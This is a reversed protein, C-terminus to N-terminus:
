RFRSPTNGNIIDASEHRQFPSQFLSRDMHKRTFLDEIFEMRQPFESWDGASAMSVDENPLPISMQTKTIAVRAAKSDTMAMDIMPDLQRQEHMGIQVNGKLMHDRREGYTKSFKADHYNQFADQLDPKGQIGQNFQKMKDPSPQDMGGIMDAFKALQPAIETFVKNNGAAIAMETTKAVGDVTKSVGPMFNKEGRIASGAEASAHSAWTSWNAGAGPIRKDIVNSLDGYMQTIKLNRQKPDTMKSIKDIESTIGGTGKFDKIQGLEGRDITSGDKYLHQRDGNELQRRFTEEKRTKNWETTEGTKLDSRDMKENGWADKTTVSFNKDDLSVNGSEGNSNKWGGDNQKNWEVGNPDTMGNLKNDDGYSFSYNQGEQNRFGSIQGSEGRIAGAQQLGADSQDKSSPSEFSAMFSAALQKPRDGGEGEGSLDVRDRSPSPTKAVPSVPPTPKPPAISSVGSNSNTSPSFAPTNTGIDM